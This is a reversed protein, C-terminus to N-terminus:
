DVCISKVIKVKFRINVSFADIVNSICVMKIAPFLMGTMLYAINVM